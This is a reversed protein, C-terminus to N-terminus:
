KEEAKLESLAEMLVERGISSEVGPSRPETGLMTPNHNKWLSEAEKWLKHFESDGGGGHPQFFALNEQRGMFELQDKHTYTEWDTPVYPTEKAAYEDLFKCAARVAKDHDPHSEDELRELARFWGKILSKVSKRNAKLYDERVALIDVIPHGKEELYKGTYPRHVEDGFKKEAPEFFPDYSIAADCKVFIPGDKKKRGDIFLQVCEAPGAAEVAIKRFDVSYDDCLVMLMTHSPEMQGYAVHKGELKKFDQNTIEIPAIMADADRSLDLKLIAVAPIGKSRAVVHSEVLWTGVDAPEKGKVHQIRDMVDDVSDVGVFQLEVGDCLALEQAVYLPAYGTWGKITVRVPPTRNSMVAYAVAAILVLMGLMAILLKGRGSRPTSIAADPSPPETRVNSESSTRPTQKRQTSDGSEQRDASGFTLPSGKRPAKVKRAGITGPKIGAVGDLFDCMAQYSPESDLKYYTVGRLPDPIHNEGDADFFIPVFKLTQSRADYVEQTILAGEWDAGKGKGPEEHGRFRRYYTESCVVLVFDADDLQNMMWRPWGEPPTGNIYQDIQAEYGDDRLRESLSLVMERHEKSDHSYSIFVFPPNM